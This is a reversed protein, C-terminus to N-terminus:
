KDFLYFFVLLEIKYESVTDISILLGVQIVIFWNVVNIMYILAYFWLSYTMGGFRFLWPTSFVSGFIYSLTRSFPALDLVTALIAVFLTIMPPRMCLLVDGALVGSPTDGLNKTSGSGLSQTFGPTQQLEHLFMLVCLEFGLFVSTISLASELFWASVTTWCTERTCWILYDVCAPGSFLELLFASAIIFGSVCFVILLNGTPTLVSIGCLFSRPWDSSKSASERM